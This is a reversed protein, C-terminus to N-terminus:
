HQGHFHRFVWDALLYPAIVLPFTLVELGFPWIHGGRIFLILLRMGWMPAVVVRGASQLLRGIKSGELLPASIGVAAVFVLTLIALTLFPNRAVFPRFRHPM